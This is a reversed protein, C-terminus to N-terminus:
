LEDEEEALQEKQMEKDTYLLTVANADDTSIWALMVSTKSDQYYFKKDNSAQIIYYESYKNNISKQLRTWLSTVTEKPNKMDDYIFQVSILKGKYFKFVASPWEQGGFRMDLVLIHDEKDIIIEKNKKLIYKEVESRTTEGLTFDFFKRQIQASVCLNVLFLTVFLVLTKKM